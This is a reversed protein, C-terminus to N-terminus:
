SEGKAAWDQSKSLMSSEEETLKIPSDSRPNEAMLYQKQEEGAEMDALKGYNSVEKREFMDRVRSIWPLIPLVRFWALFVLSAGSISGLVLLIATWIPLKERSHSQNQDDINETGSRDPPMTPHTLTKIPGSDAIENDDKDFGKLQVYSLYGKYEFSTEFGSRDASDILNSTGNTQAEYLKWTRVETDGNWSVHVVTLPDKEFELSDLYSVSHVDPLTAPKGVFPFKYNRYSGMWDAKFRAEMLLTGDEAHESQLARESWGLFANGDELVQMNGRRDNYLGDTLGQPHEYVAKLTAKMEKTDLSILLGQSNDASAPEPDQGKANNLMSVITEDGSQGRCRIDHQRSFHIDGMDFNGDPGNTLRWVISGDDGSIKYITNCHRASLLYDGDPCQDLANSHSIATLLFWPPHSKNNSM